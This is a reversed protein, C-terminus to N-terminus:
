SAVGLSKLVNMGTGVVDDHANQTYQWRSDKRLEDEFDGINMPEHAGQDNRRTIAKQINKDFVDVQSSPIELIRGISEKYNQTLDDLTAGAEIDDAFAAYRQASLKKLRGLVGENTDNGAHVSRLRASLYDDSPQIGLAHAAARWTQLTGSASGALTNAKVAKSWDFSNALRDRIQAENWGFKLATDAVTWLFGKGNVVETINTTKDGVKKNVNKLKPAVRPLAQGTMEAWQDSLSAMVQTVQAVYKAPDTQRMIQYKRQAESRSRFWKTQMLEATFREPTYQKKVATKFLEKLSKDSNLVALSWGYNAALDEDSLKPAGIAAM